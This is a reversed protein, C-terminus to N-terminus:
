YDDLALENCSKRNSNCLHLVGDETTVLQLADGFQDSFTGTVVVTRDSTQVVSRLTSDTQVVGVVPRGSMSLGVATGSTAPQGSLTTGVYRGASESKTVAQSRVSQFTILASIGVLVAVLAVGAVVSPLQKNFVM